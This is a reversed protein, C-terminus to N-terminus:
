KAEKYTTVMIIPLDGYIEMFDQVADDESNAYIAQTFMENDYIYTISYKNM